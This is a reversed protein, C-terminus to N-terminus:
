GFLDQTPKLNSSEQLITGGHEIRVQWKGNEQGTIVGIAGTSKLRVTAGVRLEPPNQDNEILM